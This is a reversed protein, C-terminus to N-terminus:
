PLFRAPDVLAFYGSQAGIERQLAIHGAGVIFLVREDPNSAIRTLNVFIKLNRGYWFQVWNAGPYDDDEGIRALELYGAGDPRWYDESNLMRLVAGVTGSRQVAETRAVQRAYIAKVSALLQAAAPHKAAYAPYDVLADPVGNDRNWDVAYVRDHSLRKALRLGIQDIENRSLAYKGARYDRYRADLEAQKSREMEIAIRTPHFEALKAVVEEIQRQRQPSLVDDVQMNVLDRGPSAMHYTGLVLLQRRPSPQNAGLSCVLLLLSLKRM